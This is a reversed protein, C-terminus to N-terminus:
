LGMLHHFCESKYGERTFKEDDDLETWCEENSKLLFEYCIIGKKDVKEDREKQGGEGDDDDRNALLFNEEM